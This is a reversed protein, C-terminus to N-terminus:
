SALSRKQLILAEHALLSRKLEIGGGFGCLKGGAGIVRHCPVIIPLNNRGNANGVARMASPKGIEEAIDGYTRTEGYPIRTLARWVTRQFATGDFELPLDFDLLRGSFYEEFQIAAADLLGAGTGLPWPEWVEGAGFYRVAEHESVPSGPSAMVIRWIRGRLEAIYIRLPDGGSLKGDVSTWFAM